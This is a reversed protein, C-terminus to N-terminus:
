RTCGFGLRYEWVRWGNIKVSLGGTFSGGRNICKVAVYAMIGVVAVTAIAVVVVIWVAHALRRLDTRDALRLDRIEAMAREQLENTRDLFSQGRVAATTGLHLLTNSM